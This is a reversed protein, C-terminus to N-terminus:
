QRIKVGWAEKIIDSAKEGIMIAPANTHAAIAFPIVSCDAVRLKSIGHVKLEHNVVSRPDEPPGMRNTGVQHHLTISLTRVACKWYNDSNFEYFECGPVPKDDLKAGYEQFSPTESLKIIFRIIAVFTNIDQENPDSLYNGYFFPSTYPNNSRLKMYGSSKPHLIMPYMSITPVQHLDRWLADYVDDRIRMSRRSILGFDSNLAGGVFLIEMDPYTSNTEDSIETKIYAIGEVGGLSTGPGTGKEFYAKAAELTLSRRLSLSVDKSIRFTLGVFTIHDQMYQGVPLDALPRINLDHLDQRPGVGSLMLLQASNFTGASLIIEKRAIAKYKKRNKTYQVGYAANTNPDILIKTVYASTVIHLNTKHKVPNLFARASSHRRGRKLTAQVTNFGIMNPTAYDTRDYGLDKGSNIFAEVLESQYSDEVSLYGDYNHYNRDYFKLSANESKLFYPLVDEYSWNPNGLEAWRNYDIPHGRTYIMYNIVTTGGLAKGRPYALLNNMMGRAFGPDYEMLFQWDYNTMQFAPAAVPILTLDNEEVGAELLLINWSHIESLRNAIVCGSSGAGIIIFDYINNLFEGHQHDDKERKSIFNFNHDLINKNLFNIINNFPKIKADYISILKKLVNEQSIAAKTMIALTIVYFTWKM